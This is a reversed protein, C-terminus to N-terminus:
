QLEENSLFGVFEEIVILLKKSDYKIGFRAFANYRPPCHLSQAELIKHSM